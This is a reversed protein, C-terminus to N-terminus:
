IVAARITRKRGHYEGGKIKVIHNDKLVEEEIIGIAVQLLRRKEDSEKELLHNVQALTIIRIDPFQTHIEPATNLPSALDLICRPQKSKFYDATLIPRNSSAGCFIIDAHKVLAEIATKSELSRVTCQTVDQYQEPHLTAAGVVIMKAKLAFSLIESGLKGLGILGIPRGSLDGIENKLIRFGMGSYTRPGGGIGTQTRVRKGVQLGRQFLNHLVPSIACEEIADTYARKIQGQIEYEGISPSYLGSIVQYLHKRNEAKEATISFSRPLAVKSLEHFTYFDDDLYWECRQCTRVLVGQKKQHYLSEMQVITSNNQSFNTVSLRYM